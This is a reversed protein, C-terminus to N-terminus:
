ATVPLTAQPQEELYAILLDRGDRFGNPVNECTQARPEASPIFQVADNLRQVTRKGVPFVATSTRGYRTQCPIDSNMSMLYTPGIVPLNPNPMKEGAPTDPEGLLPCVFHG